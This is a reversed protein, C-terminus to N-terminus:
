VNIPTEGSSLKDFCLPHIRGATLQLMTMQGGM